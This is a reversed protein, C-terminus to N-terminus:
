RDIGPRGSRHAYHPREALFRRSWEANTGDSQSRTTPAPVFEVPSGIHNMISRITSDTDQTLQEYTIHMPTIGNENFYTEWADNERQIRGLAAEIADADYVPDRMVMMSSNWSETQDARVFSIAQRIEDERTIRVWSVPVSWFGVDVGVELMHREYQNWHMKIGFVGNDTARQEAIASLYALWSSKTFWDIDRWAFRRGARTRLAGLPRLHLKLKPVGTRSRFRAFNDTQINLYEIPTGAARTQRLISCLLTSGTREVSAIALLRTVRTQNGDTV